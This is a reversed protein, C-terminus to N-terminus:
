PTVNATVTIYDVEIKTYDSGGDTVVLTVTPTPDSENYIFAVSPNQDTSTAPNAGTGFDWLYTESGSFGSSLNTFTVNLGSCVALPTASFNVTQGWSIATSIMLLSGGLMIARPLCLRFVMDSFHSFKIM